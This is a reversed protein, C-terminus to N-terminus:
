RCVSQPLAFVQQTISKEQSVGDLMYAMRGDDANSFTFTASGVPMLTVQSPDWPEAYFAPGRTRYLIGSYATDSVRAGDSMVLWDPRGDVDYTFWTAFLIQGQQEINVGWGSEIGAPSRWWLGTYNPAPGPTGGVVCSPSPFAYIQKGIDKTQTVGDVTYTFRGLYDLAFALTASGVWESSVLSPEWPTADFAPGTARYIDGTYRDPAGDFRVRSMNPMFFWTGEGNADYTFWTVFLTTRQHTINMGWGPERGPTQGEAAGWWLGQYNWVPDPPPFNGLAWAEGCHVLLSFLWAALPTRKM